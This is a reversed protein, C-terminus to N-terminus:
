HGHGAHPDIGSTVIQAKLEFAGHEVYRQGPQLGALVAVRDRDARGLRVPVPIFGDGDEIFVIDEGDLVQVANKRIVVPARVPEVIVKVTAYLGPRLAGTPNALVIRAPATRTKPDVIPAVYSVTGSTGPFSEGVKVQVEQGVQVFNLDKQFVSFRVWVSSTDAITILSEDDGIKEGLTLHKETIFGAFPARLAYWGLRQERGLTDLVSPMQCERCNPDDCLCPESGAAQPVLALLGSLVDDGVGKLRLRQEAAVAEFEAVQQRRAAESYGILVQYRATDRAAAFEAQAKKLAADAEIFESESSVRKEFLRQEREFAKRAAQYESYAALLRGRYDGMELDDLKRLEAATPEEELLALLRNTNEFIEKARPLEVKCCGVEAYKSYFALKAEALVDSEIWALIEGEEVHDGLTKEVERVIGAAPPVIHVMREANLIIEGPFSATVAITGPGVTALELAIRERQEQSLEVHNSEDERHDHGDDEAAPKTQEATAEHDHDDHDDSAGRDPSDTEHGVESAGARGTGDLYGIDCGGILLAALSLSIMLRISSIM